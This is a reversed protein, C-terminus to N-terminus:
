HMTKGMVEKYDPLIEDLLILYPDVTNGHLDYLYSKYHGMKWDWITFPAIQGLTGEFLEIQFLPAYHNVFKVASPTGIRALIQMTLFSGSMISLAFKTEADINITIGSSAIYDNELQHRLQKALWKEIVEKIAWTSEKYFDTWQSILFSNKKDPCFEEVSRRISAIEYEIFKKVDPQKVFANFEVEKLKLNLRSRLTATQQLFSVRIYIPFEPNEQAEEHAFSKEIFSKDKRLYYNASVTYGQKHKKYKRKQPPEM